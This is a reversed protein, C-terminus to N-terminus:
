LLRPSFFRDDRARPPTRSSRGDGCRAVRGGFSGAGGVECVGAVVFLAVSAAVAGATWGEGM